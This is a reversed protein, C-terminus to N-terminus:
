CINRKYPTYNVANKDMIELINEKSKLIEKDNPKTTIKNFVLGLHEKIMEWQADTPTEGSIEVYGQLWACFFDSTMNDM